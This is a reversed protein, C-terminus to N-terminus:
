LHIKGDTKQMTNCKYLIFPKYSLTCKWELLALQDIKYSTISYGGSKLTM